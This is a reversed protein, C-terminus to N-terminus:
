PHAVADVDNASHDGTVTLVVRNPLCVAMQGVRTVAYTRVCIQDPCDSSLFAMGGGVAIVVSPNSPLTYTTYRTLDFVAATHGDVTVVGRVPQPPWINVASLWVCAIVVMALFVLMDQRRLLPRSESHSNM